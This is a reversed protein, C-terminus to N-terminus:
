ALELRRGAVIYAGGAASAAVLVLLATPWDLLGNFAAGVAFVASVCLAFFLPFLLLWILDIIRSRLANKEEPLGSSLWRRGDAESVYPPESTSAGSGTFYRSGVRDTRTRTNRM